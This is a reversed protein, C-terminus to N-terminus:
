EGDKDEIYVRKSYDDVAYLGEHLSGFGLAILSCSNINLRRLFGLLRSTFAFALDEPLHTDFHPRKVIKTKNTHLTM